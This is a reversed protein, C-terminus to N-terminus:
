VETEYGFGQAAIGVLGFFGSAGSELVDEVAGLIPVEVIGPQHRLVIKQALGSAGDAEGFTMVGAPEPGFGISVNVKDFLAVEKRSKVGGAHHNGDAEFVAEGFRQVDDFGSRGIPFVGIDVETVVDGFDVGDFGVM